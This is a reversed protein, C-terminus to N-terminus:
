TRVEGWRWSQVDPLDEGHTRVYMRHEVLKDRCLQKVHGAIGRLRPIRDIV